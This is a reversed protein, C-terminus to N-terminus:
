RGLPNWQRELDLIECRREVYRHLKFYGLVTRKTIPCNVVDDISKGTFGLVRHFASTRRLVHETRGAPYPAPIPTSFQGPLM